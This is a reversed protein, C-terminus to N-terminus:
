PLKGSWCIQRQSRFRLQLIRSHIPVHQLALFAWADCQVRSNAPLVVGQTISSQSALYSGSGIRIRGVRLAAIFEHNCKVSVAQSCKLSSLFWGCYWTQIEFDWRSGHELFCNDGIDVLCPVDIIFCNYSSKFCVCQKCVCMSCLIVCKEGIKAGMLRIILWRERIIITLLCATQCRVQTIRQVVRHRAGVFFIGDASWM